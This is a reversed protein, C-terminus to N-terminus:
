DKLSNMDIVFRYRVDSAMVREWAENIGDMDIMEIDSVIGHESAFDLMEQTEALGGILSGELSKRGAILSNSHIGEFPEIAGVIVMKGNRALLSLYTDLNHPVPVTKLLFDFRGRAAKFAEKDTTILTDAGLERADAEKGPSRSLVTVEAGMAAAFKVGLHGLGGLGVVGIKHGKKVGFRKLPSYTTIGACLLPPVAKVDLNKPIHLVFEERVTISQSYGGHTHGGSLKDKSGYTWTARSHCYQEDGDKCADCTQCSDVLCGVGVIDGVKFSSVSSGVEVVKGVIEHGPVLPYVANGWDNHATHIDSHCVGCYDIDIKVDNDRTERREINLPALASDSSTAAFAKITM